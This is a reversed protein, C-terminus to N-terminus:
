DRSDCRSFKSAHEIFRRTETEVLTQLIAAAEEDLNPVGMEKAIQNIFNQNSFLSM